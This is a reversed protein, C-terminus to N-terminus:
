DLPGYKGSSMAQSFKKSSPSEIQIYYESTPTERTYSRLDFTFPGKDIKSARIANKVLTIAETKWDPSSTVIKKSKPYDLKVEIPVSLSKITDPLAHIATELEPLKVNNVSYTQSENLVKRVEERIIQQLESKKM